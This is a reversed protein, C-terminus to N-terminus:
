DKKTAPKTATTRKATTKPAAKKTTTTKKATTKKAAPKKTATTKRTTKRTAPKKKEEPVEKVVPKPKAMEEEILTLKESIAENLAANKTTFDALYDAVSSFLDIRLGSVNIAESTVVLYLNVPVIEEPELFNNVKKYNELPLNIVGTEISILTPVKYTVELQAQILHGAETAERVNTYIGAMTAALGNQKLTEPSVNERVSDYNGEAIANQYTQVNIEM